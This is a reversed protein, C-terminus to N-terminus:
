AHSHTLEYKHIRISLSSISSIYSMPETDWCFCALNGLIVYYMNISTGSSICMCTINRKCPVLDVVVAMHLLVLLSDRFGRRMEDCTRRMAVGTVKAVRVTFIDPIVLSGCPRQERRSLRSTVVM